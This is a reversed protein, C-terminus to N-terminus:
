MLILAASDMLVNQVAGLNFRFASCFENLSESAENGKM